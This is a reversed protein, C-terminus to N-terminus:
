ENTDHEIRTRTFLMKVQFKHAMQFIPLPFLITTLTSKGVVVAINAHCQKRYKNEEEDDELDSLTM